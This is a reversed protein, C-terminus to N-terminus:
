VPFDAELYAQYLEPTAAPRLQEKMEQKRQMLNRKGEERDQGSLFESPQELTYYWEMMYLIYEDATWGLRNTRLLVEPLIALQNVHKLMTLWATLRPPQPMLLFDELWATRDMLSRRFLASSVGGHVAAGFKQLFVAMESNEYYSALEAGSLLLHRPMFLVGSKQATGSGEEAESIALAVIDHTELVSVMNYFRQKMICEGAHLWQVYAGKARRSLERIPHDSCIMTIESDQLVSQAQEWTEKDVNDARGILFIEWFTYTQEQISQVTRLCADVDGEFLIAVTVIQKGAMVKLRCYSDAISEALHFMNKVPDVKAKTYRCTCADAYRQLDAPRFEGEEDKHLEEGRFFANADDRWVRVWQTYRTFRALNSLWGCIAKSAQQGQSRWPFHALHIKPICQGDTPLYGDHCLQSDSLMVWHNGQVLRVNHQETAKMGVMVKSLRDPALSCKSPRALLFKEQEREADLLRYRFWPLRYVFAADLSQLCARLEAYGGEEHVLFEDADLPVVLDADYERIARYMLETMVESQLHGEEEFNDVFLALGEAQLQSLIYRTADTSHHDMVLLEDAYSLTHRVFSEIIDAENKVMTIGVIKNKKMM